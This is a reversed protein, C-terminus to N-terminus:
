GLNVEDRVLRILEEASMPKAFYYGQGRTCGLERLAALQASTEIGEAVSELGMATAIGVVASVITARDVGGPEGLGRVFSQDVKITDFPLRQLHTLSSYGTGFDDVAIRVGTARIALLAHSALDLDDTIATETLELCLDEPQWGHRAVAGAVAAALAPQDLQRPSLNVAVEFRRRRGAADPQVLPALTALATDLVWAGIPRIAGTEEAVPIFEDPPVPGLGPHQWRCLAEAGVVGGTALDVIPQYVVRLEDRELAQRLDAALSLRQRASAQMDPDFVDVRDRGRQKARLMAADAQRLLTPADVGPHSLALGLSATLVLDGGGPSFPEALAERLRDAVALVTDLRGPRACVVVFEDAAVRAITDDPRTARRLRDAVASLVEDGQALGYTDNVLKFHDLDVYVVGVESETRHARDLATQLRDLLLTRNPLGTLADHMERHALETVAAHRDLAVSVLTCAIEAARLAHPTPPRRDRHFSVIAAVALDSGAPVVPAWWVTEVGAAVLAPRMTDSTEPDDLHRVWPVGHPGSVRAHLAPTVDVEGLAARLEPGPGRGLAARPRLRRGEVLAVAAQAGEDHDEVMAAIAELVADLPTTGAILELIATQSAVLAESRKQETINRTTLVIGGVTPDDILNVAHAWVDVWTGDHHRVRAETTVANGPAELAQQVLPGIRAVDDPHMLDTFTVGDWSDTPYGLVPAVQGTTSVIRGDPDLVTVTDSINQVLTRWRHESAHLSRDLEVDATVDVVLVVVETEPGSGATIASTWVKLEIPTGAATIGALRAGDLPDGALTRARIGASGEGLARLPAGVAEDASWGLVDEAAPNWQTVVDGPGLRAVALPIRDILSAMDVHASALAGSLRHTATSETVTLVFAEIRDDAGTVAHGHATFWREAGPRGFRSDVHLPVVDGADCGTLWGAILERHEPHVLDLLPRGLIEEEPMALLTRLAPNAEVVRHDASTVVIATDSLAFVQARTAERAAPSLRPTRATPDM